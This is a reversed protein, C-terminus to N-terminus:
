TTEGQCGCIWERSDVCLETVCYMIMGYKISLFGVVIWQLVTVDDVLNWFTVFLLCSMIMTEVILTIAGYNCVRRYSLKRRDAAVPKQYLEVLLLVSHWCVFFLSTGGMILLYLGEKIQLGNRVLIILGSAIVRFHTLVVIFWMGPGCPQPVIHIQMM